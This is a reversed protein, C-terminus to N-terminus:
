LPDDSILRLGCEWHHNVAGGDADAMKNANVVMFRREDFEVYDEASQGWNNFNLTVGAWQYPFVGLHDDAEIEGFMQVLFETSLRTARTSQIPQIFAKVQLHIPSQPLFGAENCVPEDPNQLHWIPDRHGEPTRCPCPVQSDDRHYIADSGHKKLLKQFDKVTPM